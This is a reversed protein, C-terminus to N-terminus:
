RRLFEPATLLLTLAQAGSAARAIATQTEASLTAGLLDPALDAANSRSGIRQGVADAWEIRKMLASAGDWDASRDPWGAPSGPSYTRQGLVEFVAVGARKGRVPLALGRFTSVIYDNPTKYKTFPERWAEPSDILARYVSPLHGHSRMFEKAVREVAQPPPDDAIFHRTLKTAIFKATAPSAAVDRLVAVGQTVDDQSYTKGLVTKTGPEHLEPRFVFKGAEGRQLAGIQGGISWGTIVEAFTSVDQQTYGGNVGLTHLELIERALNENIGAQRGNRRRALLRAARSHPGISLHNDLYLLMAPHQEVALLMDSFNGLVHPRIAEREFAGALGLVAIKDVSVAFHNTWFQTLREVFPRDTQVAHALRATVEDIYIPRYIQPLKLLQAVAAEPKQDPENRKGARRMQRQDRRLEITEALVDWSSRLGAAEFAPAGGKLQATLWGRPDDGISALEGPRAGLGFRNAAIAPGFRDQM